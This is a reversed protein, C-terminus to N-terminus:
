LNVPYSYKKLRMYKQVQNHIETVRGARQSYFQGRETDQLGRHYNHKVEGHHQEDKRGDEAHIEVSSFFPAKVDEAAEVPSILKKM